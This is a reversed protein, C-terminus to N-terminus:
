ALAEGFWCGESHGTHATSVELHADLFAIAQPALVRGHFVNRHISEPHVFGFHGVRLILLENIPHAIADQASAQGVGSVTAVFGIHNGFVLISVGNPWLHVPFLWQRALRVFVFLAGDLAHINGIGNRALLQEVVPLQIIAVLNVVVCRGGQTFVADQWLLAVEIGVTGYVGVFLHHYGFVSCVDVIATVDHAFCNVSPQATRPIKEVCIDYVDIGVCRAPHVIECIRVVFHVKTVVETVRGIVVIGYHAHRPLLSVGEACPAGVIQKFPEPRHRAKHM